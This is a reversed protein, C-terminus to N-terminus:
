SSLEMIDPNLRLSGKGRLIDFDRLEKMASNYNGGRTVLGTHRGIDLASFVATKDRGYQEVFFDMIRRASKSRLKERWFRVRDKGNAPIVERDEGLAAIGRDTIKLIGGSEAIWANTRCERMTINHNGGRTSLGTVTKLRPLSLGGPFLFLASLMRRSSPRMVNKTSATKKSRKIAPKDQDEMAAPRTSSISVPDTIASADTIANQLVRLMETARRKASDRENEALALQRQLDECRSELDALRTASSASQQDMPRESEDLSRLDGFAKLFQLKGSPVPLEVRTGPEPARTITKPNTRFRIVDTTDLAPGTVFFEGPKLTRLAPWQSRGTFGLLESARKLDVDAALRGVFRNNAEAVVSKSLDSLRQTAVLGGLGRKRGRRMLDVVAARSEADGSEPAFQQAEDIMILRPGHLRSPAAILGELLLRVFRQQEALVLESLDLVASCNLGLLRLAIDGALRPDAPADVQDDRPGILAVNFHSRVSSWEGEADIILVPFQPAFAEFLLRMLVSKGSGSNGWALARNAILKRPNIDVVREAGPPTLVIPRM